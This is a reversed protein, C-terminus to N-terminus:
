GSGQRGPRAPSRRWSAEAGYSREQARSFPRKETTAVARSAITTGRRTPRSGGKTIAPLRGRDGHTGTRPARRLSRLAQRLSHPARGPPPTPSRGDARRGTEHIRRRKAQRTGELSITPPQQEESAPADSDPKPAALAHRGLRVARSIHAARTTRRQAPPADGASRRVARADTGCGPIPPGARAGGAAAPKARAATPPSVQKRSTPARGQGPRSAPRALAPARAAALRSASPQTGTRQQTRPALRSASPALRSPALFHPPNPSRLGGTTIEAVTTFSKHAASKATTRAFQAMHVPQVRFIRARTTPLRSGSRSCSARDGYHSM